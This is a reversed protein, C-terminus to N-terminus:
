IKVTEEWEFPRKAITVFTPLFIRHVRAASQRPRQTASPSTTHNQHRSAPTLNRLSNNGALRRHCFLGIVPSLVFSVTLVMRTRSHRTIGTSSATVVSTHKKMKARSAAPAIPVRCEGRGKSKIPSINGTFSARVHPSIAFSHGALSASNSIQIQLLRPRLLGLRDRDNRSAGSPAPGSDMVVIPLISERIHLQV